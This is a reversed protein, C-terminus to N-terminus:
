EVEVGFAVMFGDMAPIGCSFEFGYKQRVMRGRGLDLFTETGLVLAILGETFCAPFSFFTPHLSTFPFPDDLPSYNDTQPYAM